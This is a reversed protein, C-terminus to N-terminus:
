HHGGALRAFRQVYRQDAKTLDLLVFFDASGFDADHAPESGVRAGLRLYGRLLAPIATGAGEHLDALTWGVRPGAHYETLEVHNELVYRRTASAQVGQDSLPVSLCGGLWRCQYKQAWEFMGAWLRGVVAGNRHEPHVTLRGVELLAPRVASLSSLDFLKDSYLSGAAGASEPVLMRCTGVVTGSSQHTVLLHDCFEDFQDVDLVQDSQWSRYQSGFVQRRLRQAAAIEAPRRTVASEYRESVTNRMDM